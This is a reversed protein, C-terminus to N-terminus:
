SRDTRVDLAIDLAPASHTIRGIAVRQAGAEAYDRVTALDITGSAEFSARDGARGCALRVEEPTFNDLLIDVAGAAVADDLEDLSAVEVQVHVGAPSTLAAEVAARMSGAAAVHNDKVLIADYLGIRHNAGGGVRVAHKELLRLGPLTKRTDRVATGTGAVADVFRRTETAIGSLHTLLNLATREATLISRLPGEVAALVDGRRVSAGDAVALQLDIGPDVRAFTERVADLGCVVGDARAVLEATGRLDAPVTAESTVDGRGSLDEALARTVADRVAEALLDDEVVGLEVPVDVAEPSPM